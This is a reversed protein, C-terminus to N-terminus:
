AGLRSAWHILRDWLLARGKAFNHMHACDPVIMLEIDRCAAYAAPDRRPEQALDIDGFAIFVPCTIAAAEPAVAGPQILLNGIGPPTLSGWAPITRRLPYGGGLDAAVIDEPVSGDFFAPRVTASAEARTLSTDQFLGALEGVEVGANQLGFAVSSHVASYGLVALAEFVAFRGQMLISFCGGMSQGMGILLPDAIPGLGKVLTGNCLRQRV